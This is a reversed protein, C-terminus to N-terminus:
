QSVCAFVCVRESLRRWVTVTIEAELMKKGKEGICEYMELNVCVGVPYIVQLMPIHIEGIHLCFIM